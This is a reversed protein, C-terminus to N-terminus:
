EGEDDVQYETFRRQSFRGSADVVWSSELVSQGDQREIKLETQGEIARCWVTVTVAVVDDDLVRLFALWEEANYSKASVRKNKQIQLIRVDRGDAMMLLENTKQGSYAVRIVCPMRRDFASRMMM